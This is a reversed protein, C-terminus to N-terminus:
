GVVHIVKMIVKQTIANILFFKEAFFRSAAYGGSKKQWLDTVYWAWM